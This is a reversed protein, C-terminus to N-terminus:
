LFGDFTQDPFQDFTFRSEEMAEDLPLTDLYKYFRRHQFSFLMLFFLLSCHGSRSDDDVFVTLRFHDFLWRTFSDEFVVDHDRVAM